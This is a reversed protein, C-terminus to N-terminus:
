VRRVLLKLEPKLGPAGKYEGNKNNIVKINTKFDPYVWLLDDTQNDEENIGGFIFMGQEKIISKKVLDQLPNVWMLRTLEKGNTINQDVVPTLTHYKRALKFKVLSEDALQEQIECNIWM